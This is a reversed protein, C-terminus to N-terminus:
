PWWRRIKVIEEALSLALDPGGFVAAIAAGAELDSLRDPRSAMALADLLADWWTHAKPESVHATLANLMSRRADLDSTSLAVQFALDASSALENHELIKRFLRPRNYVHTIKDCEHLLRNTLDASGGAYAAAAEHGTEDLNPFAALVADQASQCQQPNLLSRLQALLAVRAGSNPVSIVRNLFDDSVDREQLLAELYLASSPDSALEDCVRAHLGPHGTLAPLASLLASSRLLGGNPMTAPLDLLVDAARELLEPVACLSPLTDLTAIARQRHGQLAACLVLANEALDREQALYPGISTLLTFRDPGRLMSQEPLDSTASLVSLVESATQRRLTGTLYRVSGALVWARTHVGRGDREPLGSLFSM